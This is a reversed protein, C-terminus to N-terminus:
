KATTMIRMYSLIAKALVNRKQHKEYACPDRADHVALHLMGRLELLPRPVARLALRLDVGLVGLLLLLKALLLWDREAWNLGSFGTM